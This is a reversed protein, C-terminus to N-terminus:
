AGLTFRFTAGAGPEAQAWVKGGHRNVVRQVIALGVGTGAFDTAAHLRHFVGFLKEAHEMDFGVGNDRVYYETRPPDAGDAVSQAGIQVRPAAGRASFKCANEILNRWVQRLLLADGRAAPLEGVEVRIRGGAVEPLEALVERVVARMDVERLEIQARGTRAFELLGDLLGAMRLTAAEIRALHGRADAPLAAGHDERLIASFGVIARLPARLDHAVSYSFGELDRNAQELAATRETVRRELLNNMEYVVADARRQETVDRYTLILHLRGDLVIPLGSILVDVVRGDPRAFRGPADVLRGGRLLTAERERRAEPDLWDLLDHARAALAEARSLGAIQLAADNIETVRDEDLHVVVIGVPNTNFLATFKELSARAQAQAQRLPTLDYLAFIYRPGDEMHVMTANVAISRQGSPLEYALERGVVTAGGRLEDVLARLPGEETKLGAEAGTRGRMQGASLGSLDLTAQNFQEAEGRPHRAVILPVPATDFIRNLKNEADQMRQRARQFAVMLFGIMMPLVVLPYLVFNRWAQGLIAYGALSMGIWSIGTLCLVLFGSQRTARWARWLLVSITVALCLVLVFLAAVMRGAALGALLAALLAAALTAGMRASSWRRGPLVDYAGLTVVAAGATLVLVELVRLTASGEAPYHLCWRLAVLAWGIAWFLMYRDRRNQLWLYTGGLSATASVAVGVCATQFAADHILHGLLPSVDSAYPM